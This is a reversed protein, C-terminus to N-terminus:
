QIGAHSPNYLNILHNLRLEGESAPQQSSKDIGLFPKLLQIIENRPKTLLGFEPITNIQATAM